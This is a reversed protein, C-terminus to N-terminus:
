LYAKRPRAAHAPPASAASSKGGASVSLDAAAIASGPAPKFRLTFRAGGGPVNAVSIQAAYRDAIRQV